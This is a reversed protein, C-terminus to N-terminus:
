SRDSLHRRILFTAAVAVLALSALAGAIAARIPKPAVPDDLVYPQTLQEIRPERTREILVDNLQSNAARLNAANDQLENNIRTAATSGAAASDLETQLTDRENSLTAINARVIKEQDLSTSTRAKKLYGTAVAGVLAKARARSPDDVEIQLVESDELVTAHVKGTLEKVTMGNAQAVPALVERSKIAVLQTSLARDQRLFGSPLSNDLQYYIESRAGYQAEKFYSLLYGVEAGILVVLLGWVLYLVLARRPFAVRRPQFVAVALVDPATTAPANSTKAPSLDEVPKEM